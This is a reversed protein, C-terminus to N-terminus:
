ESSAVPEAKITLPTEDKEEGDEIELQMDDLTFIRYM